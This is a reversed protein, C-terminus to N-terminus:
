DAAHDQVEVEISEARVLMEQRGFLYDLDVNLAQSLLDLIEMSPKREGNEYYRVANESIQCCAALEGRSLGRLTRAEQVRHAFEERTIM